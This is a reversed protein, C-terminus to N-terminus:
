LIIRAYTEHAREIACQYNRWVANKDDRQRKKKKAAVGQGRKYPGLYLGRRYKYSALYLGHGQEMACDHLEELQRRATKSDNVAKAVSVAGILSRLASLILLFPLTGGRKATPLIRKKTVKKRKKKPKMGMGIKTKVKM